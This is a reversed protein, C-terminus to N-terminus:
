NNIGPQKSKGEATPQSDSSAKLLINAIILWSLSESCMLCWILSKKIRKIIIKLSHFLIDLKDRYLLIHFYHKPYFHGMSMGALLQPSFFYFLFFWCPSANRLKLPSCLRQSISTEGGTARIQPHFTMTQLPCLTLSVKMLINVSSKGEM